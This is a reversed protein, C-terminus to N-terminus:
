FWVKCAEPHITAFYSVTTSGNRLHRRVAASYVRRAYVPDAFKSEKPFTHTELRFLRNTYFYALCTGFRLTYRLTYSTWSWMKANLGNLCLFVWALALSSMSRRM